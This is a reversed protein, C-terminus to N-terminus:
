KGERKERGGGGWEMPLAGEKFGLGKQLCDKFGVVEPTNTRKIFNNANGPVERNRWLSNEPKSKKEGLHGKKNM